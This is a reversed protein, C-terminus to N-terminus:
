FRTVGHVIRNDHVTVTGKSRKPAILGEKTAYILKGGVYDSDDNLALQLTKSSFVDIHFNM